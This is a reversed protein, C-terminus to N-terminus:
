LTFDEYTIQKVLLFKANNKGSSFIDFPTFKLMTRKQTISHEIQDPVFSYTRDLKQRTSFM